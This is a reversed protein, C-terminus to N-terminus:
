LGLKELLRSIFGKAPKGGQTKLKSGKFVRAKRRTHSENINLIKIRGQKDLGKLYNLVKDNVDYFEIKINPYDHPINTIEVGFSHLVQNFNSDEWDMLYSTFKVSRWVKNIQTDM